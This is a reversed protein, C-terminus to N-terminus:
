FTYGIRVSAGWVSGDNFDTQLRNQTDGLVGYSVAGLINFKDIDYSLAATGVTRGDYPGLSTMTGGVSPEYAIFVSAALDDTLRRGVGVTYTWWDDDYAVLPLGSLQTYVDPSINFDSWDVWRISGFVLTKKNLGMQLDLTASQPTDIDTKDSVPGTVLSAETSDMSHDIGSLYTLAVRLGLEPRAYAAGLLYGYGWNHDTDISYGAVFPIDASADLNEARLGAYTKIRPTVDYALVGTLQYSTVKGSTGDYPLGLPFSGAGYETDVAYPQDLAFLYSFQDNIDGKLAGYFHTRPNFVDGTNGFLTRGGATANDGSQHPDVYIFGLEGYTGNQYLLRVPQPVSNELAAGHALGSWTLAVCGAVATLGSGPLSRFQM